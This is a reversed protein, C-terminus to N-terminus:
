GPMVANLVYCLDIGLLLAIAMVTVFWRLAGQKGKPPKDTPPHTWGTWAGNWWRWTHQRWPDPYWGPPTHHKPSDM